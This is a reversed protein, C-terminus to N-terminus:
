LKHSSRDFSPEQYCFHVVVKDKEDATVGIAPSFKGSCFTGIRKRLIRLEQFKKLYHWFLDLLRTFHDCSMEAIKRDFEQFKVVEVDPAKRKINRKRFFGNL